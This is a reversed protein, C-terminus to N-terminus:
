IAIAIPKFGELGVIIFPTDKKIVESSSKLRIKKGGVVGTGKYSIDTAAVGIEWLLRQEKRDRFVAIIYRQMTLLVAILVIWFLKFQFSGTIPFIAIALILGSNSLGGGDWNEAWAYFLDSDTYKEIFSLFFGSAALIGFIAYLIFDPASASTRGYGFFYPVLNILSACLLFYGTMRWEIGRRHIKNLQRGTSVPNGLQQLVETLAAEESLGRKMLAEKHDEIHNAYEQLIEKRASTVSIQKSLKKLYDKTDM